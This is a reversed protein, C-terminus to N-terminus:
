DNLALEGRLLRLHLQQTQASPDAGLEEALHARCEEFVRLASATEGLGAYAVMLARHAAESTLDIQAASGAFELAVHHDGLSNAADGADCLMVRRTQRLQNREAMAWASGDNHAHFDGQYLREASETLEITRTYQAARAARQALRAAERFQIADVWAGMLILSGNQRVVCNTGITKRIQSSATRVSARAKDESVGPWLKDIISSISVPRGDGLALIRLLDMTKGTRWEDSGVSSGNPRRVELAGLLRIMIDRHPPM